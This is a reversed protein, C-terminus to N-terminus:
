ASTSCAPLADRAIDASGGPTKGIDQQRAAGLPDIRDIHAAGLEGPLQALVGADDGQFPEVGAIEIMVMDGLRDGQNDAVRTEDAEGGDQRRREGQGGGFGMEDGQDLGLELGGAPIHPLAAHDAVLGHALRNALTDPAPEVPKGAPRHEADGFARDGAGLAIHFIQNRSMM